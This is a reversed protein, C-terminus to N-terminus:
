IEKKLPSFSHYNKMKPGFFDRTGFFGALPHGVPVWGYAPVQQQSSPQQQSLHVAASGLLWPSQRLPVPALHTRFSAAPAQLAWTILLNCMGYSSNIQFNLELYLIKSLWNLALSKKWIAYSCDIVFFLFIRFYKLVIIM